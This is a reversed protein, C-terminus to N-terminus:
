EATHPRLHRRLRTDLAYDVAWRRVCPSDRRPWGAERGLEREGWDLAEEALAIAARVGGRVVAEHAVRAAIRRAEREERARARGEEQVRVREVAREALRSTAEDLGLIDPDAEFREQGQLPFLSVTLSDPM